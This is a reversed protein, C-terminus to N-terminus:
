QPETTTLKNRNSTPLQPQPRPCNPFGYSPSREGNFAAVLCRSTFVTVSQSSRTHRITIQLTHLVTLAYDTSTTVLQLFEIFGM